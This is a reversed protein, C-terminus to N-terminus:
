PLSPCTGGNREPKHAALEDVVPMVVAGDLDPAPCHRLNVQLVHDDDVVITNSDGTGVPWIM